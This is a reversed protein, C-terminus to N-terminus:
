VGRVVEVVVVVGPSINDQFEQFISWWRDLLSNMCFWLAQWRRRRRTRIRHLSGCFAQHHHIRPPFKTASASPSTLHSTLHHAPSRPSTLAKEGEVRLCPSRAAPLSFGGSFSSVLQRDATLWYGEVPSM